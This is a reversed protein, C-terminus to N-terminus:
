PFGTASRAVESSLPRYYPNVPCMLGSRSQQAAGCVHTVVASSDNCMSSRDPNHSGRVGPGEGQRVSTRRGAGGRLGM